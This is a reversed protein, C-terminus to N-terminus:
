QVGMMFVDKAGAVRERRTSEVEDYPLLGCCIYKARVKDHVFIIGSFVGPSLQPPMAFSRKGPHLIDFKDKRRVEFVHM